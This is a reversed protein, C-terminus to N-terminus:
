DMPQNVQRGEISLKAMFEEGAIESTAEEAIWIRLSYSTSAKPELEGSTLSRKGSINELSSLYGTKILGSTTHLSYKLVSDKMRASGTTLDIDELYISYRSNISGTNTVTFKYAENQMGEEDTQPIAKLLTVSDKNDQLLLEMTGAKITHEKDSNVSVNYWAYSSGMLVVFSCTMIILLVKNKKFLDVLESHNM